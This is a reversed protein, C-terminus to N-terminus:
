RFNEVLMIESSVQDMQTHLIASGDQRVAFGSDSIPPPIEFLAVRRLRGSPIRYLDVAARDRPVPSAFFVGGRAVGWNGWYGPVLLSTVLRENGGTISVSWIGGVDRGKAYFM